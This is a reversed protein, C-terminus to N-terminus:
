GDGSKPGSKSAKDGLLIKLYDYDSGREQFLIHKEAFKERSWTGSDYRKFLDNYPTASIIFADLSIGSQKIRKEIKRSREEIEAALAPLREWLRAKEDHLYANA